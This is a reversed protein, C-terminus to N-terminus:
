KKRERMSIFINVGGRNILFLLGEELNAQSMAQNFDDVNKIKQRNLEKIIDGKRLGFRDAPSGKEIETILVGSGEIGLREALDLPVNEVKLGINEKTGKQSVEEVKKPSLKEPYLVIEKKKGQRIVELTVPNGIKKLLMEKLLENAGKIPKGDVSIVVDGVKLGSKEAPSEPYIQSVLAGREEKVEFHQALEPTLDQVEVGIWPRIVGGQQILDDMIRKALNIPIAFGIGTGLGFIMTNIGVVEGDINVMPGGSNGPNISADTQIFDEYTGTGLGSRGKASVVGVTVTQELGFPNGVALVWQGVELKDSDGLTAVPLNDASIKIVALDTQPDQGIVSAKFKRGDSLKIEIRDAAAVVHNNTLIYGSRTIIIGSGASKEKPRYRRPQTEFDEFFDEFPTGKFFDEDFPSFIRAEKLTREVTINVVAPQVNKAVMIFVKELSKVPKLDELTEQAGGPAMYLILGFITIFALLRRTFGTLFFRAKVRGKRYAGYPVLPGVSNIDDQSNIAPNELPTFM